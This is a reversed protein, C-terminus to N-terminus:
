VPIIICALPTKKVSKWRHFNDSKNLLLQHNMTWLEVEKNEKKTQFFSLDSFKWCNRCVETPTILSRYSVESETRRRRRRSRARFPQTSWRTAPIRRTSSCTWPPTVAFSPHGSGTSRRSWFMWCTPRTTTTPTLLPTTVKHTIGVPGRVTPVTLLWLQRPPFSRGGEREGAGWDGGKIDGRTLPVSAPASAATSRRRGRRCCCSARLSLFTLFHGSYPVTDEIEYKLPVLRWRLLNQGARVPRVWRPIKRWGSSLRPTRRSLRTWTSTRM